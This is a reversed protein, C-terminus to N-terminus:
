FGQLQCICKRTHLADKRVKIKNMISITRDLNLLLNINIKGIKCILKM